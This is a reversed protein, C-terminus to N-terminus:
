YLFGVSLQPVVYHFTKTRTVDQKYSLLAFAYALGVDLTLAHEGLQWFYEFDAGFKMSFMSHLDNTKTPIPVTMFKGYTIGIGITLPLRINDSIPIIANGNFYSAFYSSKDSIYFGYGQAGQFVTEFKDGKAHSTGFHQEIFLSYYTSRYGIRLQFAPAVSYFHRTRLGHTVYADASPLCPMIFGLALMLHHSSLSADGRKFTPETVSKASSSNSEPLSMSQESAESRWDDTHQRNMNNYSYDNEIQQNEEVIEIDNPIQKEVQMANSIQNHKLLLEDLHKQLVENEQRLQATDTAYDPIDANLSNQLIAIQSELLSIKIQEFQIDKEIEDLNRLLNNVPSDDQTSPTNSVGFSDNRDYKVEDQNNEWSGGEDSEWALAPISILLILIINPISLISRRLSFFM